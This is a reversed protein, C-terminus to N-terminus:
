RKRRLLLMTALVAIVAVAMGGVIEVTSLKTPAVIPVPSSSQNPTATPNTFPNIDGGNGGHHAPSGSDSTPSLPYATITIDAEGGNFVGDGNMTEITAPFNDTSLTGTVNGYATLFTV